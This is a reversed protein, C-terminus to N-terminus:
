ACEWDFEMERQIWLQLWRRGVETNPNWLVRLRWMWSKYAAKICSAAAARAEFAAKFAAAMRLLTDRRAAAWAATQALTTNLDAAMDVAMQQLQQEGAGDDAARQMLFQHAQETYFRMLELQEEPDIVLEHVLVFPGLSQVHDPGEMELNPDAIAGNLTLSCEAGDVTELKLHWPSGM